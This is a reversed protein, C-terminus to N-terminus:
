GLAVSGVGVAMVGITGRGALYCSHWFWRWCIWCGVSALLDRGFWRRWFGSPELLGRLILSLLERGVGVASMPVGDDQLIVTGFGVGVSGVVLQGVFGLM